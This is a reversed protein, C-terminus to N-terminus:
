ISHMTNRNRGFYAALEEDLTLYPTIGKGKFEAHRQKIYDLTSKETVYTNIQIATKYQKMNCTSCGIDAEAPKISRYAYQLETM